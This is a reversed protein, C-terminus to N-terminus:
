RARIWSTTAGTRRESGSENGPGCRKPHEACGGFELLEIV